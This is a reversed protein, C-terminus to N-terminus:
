VEYAIVPCNQYKKGPSIRLGCAQELLQHAVWARDIIPCFLLAKALFSILSPEDILTNGYFHYSGGSRAIYGRVGLHMVISKALLDAEESAHCHFDLMPLHRVEGRTTLVRSSMALTQGAPLAEIIRRLGAEDCDDRHILFSDADQRNHFTARKLLNPADVPHSSIHLLLSDWFPLGLNQRIALGNSILERELTSISPDRQLPLSASSRFLKITGIEPLRRILFEIFRPAECGVPSTPSDPM